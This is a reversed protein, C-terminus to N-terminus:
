EKEVNKILTDILYRIEYVLDELHYRSGYATDKIEQLRDLLEEKTM